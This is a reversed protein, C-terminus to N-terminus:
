AAKFNKTYNLSTKTKQFESQFKNSIYLILMLQFSGMLGHSCFKVHKIYLNIDTNM